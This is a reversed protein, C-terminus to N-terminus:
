GNKRGAKRSKLVDKFMDVMERVQNRDHGGPDAMNGEFILHPIGKREQLSMAVDLQGTSYARCGKNQFVVIGDVAHSEVAEEIIEIKRELSRFLM